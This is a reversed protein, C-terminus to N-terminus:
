TCRAARRTATSRRCTSRRRSWGQGPFAADGHLLLAVAAHPNHKLRPGSHETQAARAGGTVVPDVFELHSPNPYLRVKVQDGDRTEFLGEAGHHYKVDGTGSHPIAAIAKM